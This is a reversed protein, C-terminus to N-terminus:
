GKYSVAHLLRALSCHRLEKELASPQVEKRSTLVAKRAAAEVAERAVAERAIEEKFLAEYFRLSQLKAILSALHPKMRHVNVLWEALCVADSWHSTQMMWSPAADPACAISVAVCDKNVSYTVGALADIVTAHQELLNQVYEKQVINYDSAAISLATHNWTSLLNTTGESKARGEGKSKRRTEITRRGRMETQRQSYRQRQRIM